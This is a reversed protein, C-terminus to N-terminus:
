IVITAIKRYFFLKMNVDYYIICDRLSTRRVQSLYSEQAVQAYKKHVLENNLSYSMEDDTDRRVDQYVILSVVSNVVSYVRAFFTRGRTFENFHRNAAASWQGSGRIVSPQINALRCELALGPSEHLGMEKLSRGFDYLDKIRVCESNGYDVFYVQEIFQLFM